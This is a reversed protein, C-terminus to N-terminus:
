NGAPAGAAAQGEEPEAYFLVLRIDQPNNRWVVGIYKHSSTLYHATVEIAFTRSRVDCYQGVGQAVEGSVGARQVDGASRYPTDDSTGDAGDPGSRTKIIAEAAAADV